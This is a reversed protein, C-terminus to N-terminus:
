KAMLKNLLANCAVKKSRQFIRLALVTGILLHNCFQALGINWDDQQITTVAFIGHPGVQVPDADVVVSGADGHCLVEPM